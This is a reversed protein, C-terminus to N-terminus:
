RGPEEPPRRRSTADFKLGPEEDDPAYALVQLFVERGRFVGEVAVHPGEPRTLGLANWDFATVADFAARLQELDLRFGPTVVAGDHAGGVLEVPTPYVCVDWLGEAERSRLGLPGMPSDAEICAAVDDLLLGLWADGGAADDDGPGHFYQRGAEYRRDFEEPHERFLRALDPEGVSDLTVAYLADWADHCRQMAARYAAPVDDGDAAADEDLGYTQRVEELAEETERLGDAARDDTLLDAVRAVLFFGADAPVSGAARVARYVALRDELASTPGLRAWANAWPPPPLATALGALTADAAAFFPNKDTHGAM